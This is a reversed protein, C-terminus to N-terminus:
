FLAGPRPELEPSCVDGVAACCERGSDLQIVWAAGSLPLQWAATIMGAHGYWPHRRSTIVVRDGPVAAAATM